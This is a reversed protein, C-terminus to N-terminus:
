RGGEHLQSAGLEKIDWGPGEALYNDAREWATTGIRVNVEM